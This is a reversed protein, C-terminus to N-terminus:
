WDIRETGQELEPLSQLYLWVAQLEEDTMRGVFAWPMTDSLRRGSPTEGTRLAKVFDEQTWNALEGGPTLNLVTDMGGDLGRVLGGNLNDGHCAGCSSRTLYEGYVASVAPDPPIPRTLGHDIEAAETPPFKGLAALLRGLPGVEREPIENDVPPITKLYAIIAGLDDDSLQYWIRAPMGVLGRGDAGIGHRLARVWDEDAYSNGIGGMGSTLNPAYIVAMVSNNQLVKGSLDQSHCFGCYHTTVLHKGREINAGDSPISLTTVEVEYNEYDQNWRVGGVVYLIVFALLLIGLLSGFAIGIWKFIRGM